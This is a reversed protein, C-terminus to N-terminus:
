TSRTPQDSRPYPEYWGPVKNLTDIVPRPELPRDLTYLYIPEDPSILKNLDGHAGVELSQATEEEQGLETEADREANRHKWESYKSSPRPETSHSQRRQPPRFFPKIERATEDASPSQYALRRAEWRIMHAVERQGRGPWIEDPKTSVALHAMHSIMMGIILTFAKQGDTRAGSPPCDEENSDLDVSRGFSWFDM